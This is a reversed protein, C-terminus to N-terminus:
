CSLIVGTFYNVHGITTQALHQGVGNTCPVPWIKDGKMLSFIDMLENSLNYYAGNEAFPQFMVRDEGSIEGTNDGGPQPLTNKFFLLSTNTKDQPRYWLINCYFQVICDYPAVFCYQQSDYGGCTKDWCVVDAQLPVSRDYQAFSQPTSCYARFSLM